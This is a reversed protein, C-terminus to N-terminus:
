RHEGLIEVRAICSFVRRFEHVRPGYYVLASAFNNGSVPKGEDLFSVRFRIRGIATAHPLVHQQWWRVSHDSKTLLLPEPTAPYPKTAEIAAKECWPGPKSYPINAWVFVSPAVDWDNALGCQENSSGDYTYDARMISGSNHCPDLM